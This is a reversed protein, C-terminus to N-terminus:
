GPMTQFISAVAAAKQAADKAARVRRDVREAARFIANAVENAAYGASRSSPFQSRWWSLPALRTLHQANPLEFGVADGTSHALFYRLGGITGIAEFHENASVVEIMRERWAQREAPTMTKNGSM